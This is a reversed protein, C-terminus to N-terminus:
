RGRVQTFVFEPRVRQVEARPMMVGSSLAYLLSTLGTLIKGVCTRRAVSPELSAWNAAVVAASRALVVL